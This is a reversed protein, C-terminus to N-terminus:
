IGSRGKSGRRFQKPFQRRPSLCIHCLLKQVRYFDGTGIHSAGIRNLSHHFSAFPLGGFLVALLEKPFRVLDADSSTQDTDSTLATGGDSSAPDSMALRDQMGGISKLVQRKRQGAMIVRGRVRTIVDRRPRGLEETEEKVKKGGYADIWIGIPFYILCGIAINTVDEDARVMTM